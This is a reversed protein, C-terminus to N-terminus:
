NHLEGGSKEGEECKSNATNTSITPIVAFRAAPRANNVRGITRSFADTTADNYGARSPLNEV